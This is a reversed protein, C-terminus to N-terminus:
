TTHRSPCPHAKPASAPQYRHLCRVERPELGRESCWPPSAEQFTRHCSSVSILPPPPSPLAPVLHGSQKQKRRRKRCHVKYPVLFVKRFVRSPSGFERGHGSEEALSLLQRTGGLDGADPRAGKTDLGRQEALGLLYWPCQSLGPIPWGNRSSRLGTPHCHPVLTPIGLFGFLGSSWPACGTSREGVELGM